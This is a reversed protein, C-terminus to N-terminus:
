SQNLIYSIHQDYVYVLCLSCFSTEIMKRYIIFFVVPEIILPFIGLNNVM